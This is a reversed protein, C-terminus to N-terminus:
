RRGRKESPASSVNMRSAEIPAGWIANREDATVVAVGPDGFGAGAYARLLRILRERRPADLGEVVFGSPDSPHYGHMLWHDLDAKQRFVSEPLGIDCLEDFHKQVFMKWRRKVEAEGSPRRFGVITV